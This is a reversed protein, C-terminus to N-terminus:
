WASIPFFMTQDSKLRCFSSTRVIPSATNKKCTLLLFLALECQCLSLHPMYATSHTLIKKGKIGKPLHERLIRVKM